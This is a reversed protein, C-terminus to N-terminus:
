VAINYRRAIGAHCTVVGSAGADVIHIQAVLVGDELHHLDAAVLRLLGKHVVDLDEEFLNGIFGGGHGLFPIIPPLYTTVFLKNLLVCYTVM